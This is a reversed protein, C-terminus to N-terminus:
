RVLTVAGQRWETRRTGDTRVEFGIRWAYVGGPLAENRFTGDWRFPPADARFLVEGWRNFMTLSTLVLDACSEVPNFADNLGDANPTFVDPTYFTCPCTERGVSVSDRVTACENRVSARYVGTTAVTREREPTDDDWAFRGEAVTPRLAVPTEVCLDRDPGLDLRPPPIYRVLLSDRVVCAQQTVVVGYTGAQRVLLDPRTTGDQWRYAAGDTPPVRLALTQGNCLTTDKGLDVDLSYRVAISDRVVKCPTTVTVAYTGAKNVTLTPETSGDQWRYETAGPTTADLRLTNQRSCLTTDRGLDVQVRFLSVDDIYVYHYGLMPPLRKFYGITLYKEGGKALVYGSIREWQLPKTITAAQGDLVQPDANLLGINTGKLPAESFYAGLNRPLFKGPIEASVYMEFYYCADAVLPKSLPVALYEAFGQDLYLGAFGQGSRPTQAAQLLGSCTHYFDPTALNPNFWPTADALSNQLRPCARFTEFGGNPVLNQASAAGPLWVVLLSLVWCLMKM